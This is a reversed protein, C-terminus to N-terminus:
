YARCEWIVMNRGPYYGLAGMYASFEIAHGPYQMTLEVLDSYSSPYLAEKLLLRTRFGESYQGSERLGRRLNVDRVTSYHMHDLDSDVEGQISLLHDPASELLQLGVPHSNITSQYLTVAEEFSLHSSFIHDGAVLSRITLEGRYDSEILQDLSSWMQLRNGFAYREAREFYTQKDIVIM